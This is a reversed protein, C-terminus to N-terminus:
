TNPIVALFLRRRGRGWSHMLPLRFPLTTADTIDRTSTTPQEARRTNPPLQLVFTTVSEGAFARPASLSLFSYPRARQGTDPDHRRRPAAFTSFYRMPRTALRKM